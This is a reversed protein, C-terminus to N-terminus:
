EYRALRQLDLVTISSYGNQVIGEEELQRMAVNVRQRSVGVMWALEEQSVRLTPETNPYLVPHFLSAIGRAVRPTPELLRDFKMTAIFQGLRENLHDLLFHNFPISHDLLWLFTSRPLQVTRTARTAVIEYKRKEIKLLSGEGIWGGKAVGTFMVRRGNLTTDQVRLFGDVVGIWSKALEQRECVIAGAVYSQETLVAYAAERDSQSLVKPWVCRELFASAESSLKM